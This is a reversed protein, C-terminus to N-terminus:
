ARILIYLRWEDEVRVGNIFVAEGRQLVQDRLRSM